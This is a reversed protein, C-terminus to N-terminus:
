QNGQDDVETPDDDGDSAPNPVDKKTHFLTSFVEQLKMYAENSFLGVLASIGTLALNDLSEDAPQQELVAIIGGRLLFYFILGLLGGLLPRMFYWPIFAYKFDGKRSAHDLYSMITAVSSGASAGFIALLMEYFHKPEQQTLQWPDAFLILLGLVAFALWAFVIWAVPRTPGNPYFIKTTANVGDQGQPDDTSGVQRFFLLVVVAIATLAGIIAINRLAGLCLTTSACSLGNALLWGAVTSIVATAVLLYALAAWARVSVWSTKM